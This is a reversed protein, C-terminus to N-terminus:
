ILERRLAVAVAQARSRVQLIKYLDRLYSKVTQHTLGTSQAIEVTSRGEALHRLLTLHRPSISNRQSGAPLRAAWLVLRGTVKPDITTQGKAAARIARKLEGPEVDKVVYSRAGARLSAEVTEEDIVSSLMVVRANARRAAIEQCLVDGPMDPLRHAVVVVAPDIADFMELAERGGAAQGAIEFDTERGLISALGERVVDHDDVLLITITGTLMM